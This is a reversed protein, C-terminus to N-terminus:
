LTLNPGRPEPEMRGEAGERPATPMRPHQPAKNSFNGIDKSALSLGGQRLWEGSVPAGPAEGWAAQGAPATPTAGHKGCGGAPVRQEPRVKRRQGPLRQSWEDGGTFGSRLGGEGARWLTVHAAEHTDGWFQSHKLCLPLCEQLLTVERRHKPFSLFLGSGRHPSSRVGWGQWESQPVGVPEQLCSPHQLEARRGARGEM